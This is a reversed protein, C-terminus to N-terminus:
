FVGPLHRYSAVAGALALVSVIFGPALARSWRERRGSPETQGRAIMLRAVHVSEAKTLVLLVVGAVLLAQTTVSDGSVLLQLAIALFLILEGVLDLVALVPHGAYLLGAGPFALSLAEQRARKIWVEHWWVGLSFQSRGNLAM